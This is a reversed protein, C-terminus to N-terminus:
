KHPNKWSKYPGHLYLKSFHHFYRIFYLNIKLPSRTTNKTAKMQVICDNSNRACFAGFIRHLIGWNELIEIKLITRWGSWRVGLQLDDNMTQWTIIIIIIFGNSIFDFRCKRHLLEAIVDITTAYEFISSHWFQARDPSQQHQNNHHFSLM